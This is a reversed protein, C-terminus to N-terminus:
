TVRKKKPAAPKKRKAPPKKAVVVAVSEKRKGPPKKTAVPTAKVVESSDEVSPLDDNEEVQIKLEEDQLQKLKEETMPYFVSLFTRGDIDWKNIADHPAKQIKTQLYFHLRYFFLGKQLDVAPRGGCHVVNSRFLIMQGFQLHITRPSSMDYWVTIWSGEESMPFVASWALFEQSIDREEGDEDLTPIAVPFYDQHADQFEFNDNATRMANCILENLLIGQEHMGQEKFFTVFASMISAKAAVNRKKKTAQNMFETIKLQQLNVGGLDLVEGALNRQKEDAVKEEYVSDVYEIITPYHKKIYEPVEVIRLYTSTVQRDWIPKAQESVEMQRIKKTSSASFANKLQRWATRDMGDIEGQSLGAKKLWFESSKQKEHSTGQVARVRLAVAKKILKLQKPGRAAPSSEALKLQKSMSLTESVLDSIV